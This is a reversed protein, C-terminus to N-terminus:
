AAEAAPLEGPVVAAEAVVEGRRVVWQVSVVVVFVLVLSATVAAYLTLILVM